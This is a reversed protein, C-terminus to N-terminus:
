EEFEMGDDSYDWEIQPVEPAAAIQQLQPQPPPTPAGVNQLPLYPTTFSTNPHGVPRPLALNSPQIQNHKVAHAAEQYMLVQQSLQAAMREQEEKVRKEDPAAHVARELIHRKMTARVLKEEVQSYMSQAAAERGLWTQLSARKKDLPTRNRKMSTLMQMEM